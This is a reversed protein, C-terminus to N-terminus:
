PKFSVIAAAMGGYSSTINWNPTVQIAQSQIQSVLMAPYGGGETSNEILSWDSSPISPIILNSVAASLILSNNATPTITPQLINTGIGANVSNFQDLSNLAAGKWASVILGPQNFQLATGTFTHAASTNPITCFYIQLTSYGGSGSGALQWENGESDDVDILSSGHVVIVFLNAGLTNMPQTSIVSSVNTMVATSGMLEWPPIVTALWVNKGQIAVGAPIMGQIALPTGSSVAVGQSAIGM